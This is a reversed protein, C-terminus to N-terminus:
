ILEVQINYRTEINEKLKIMYDRNSKSQVLSYLQIGADTLGFSKFEITYNRHPMTITFSSGKIEIEEEDM